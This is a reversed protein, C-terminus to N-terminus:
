IQDYPFGLVTSSGLVFIRFGNEPKEKLLMDGCPRNHGLKQFYKKGVDPNIFKYEQYDEEPFNIFLSYDDGYNIIRLILEFIFLLIFSMFFLIIRFVLKKHKSLEAPDKSKQKNM